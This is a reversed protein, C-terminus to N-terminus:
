GNMMDGYIFRYAIRCTLPIRQLRFIVAQIDYTSLATRMLLRTETTKIMEAWSLLISLLSDSRLGPRRVRPCNEASILLLSRNKRRRLRWLRKRKPLPFLNRRRLLWWLNRRPLLQSLPEWSKPNPSKRRRRMLIRKGTSSQTRLLPFSRHPISSNPLM